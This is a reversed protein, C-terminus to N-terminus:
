IIERNKKKKRAVFYAVGAAGLIALLGGDLPAGITDRCSGDRLRDQAMAEGSFLFLFLLSILFLNRKTKM